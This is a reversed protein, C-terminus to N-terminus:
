KLIRKGSIRVSQGGSKVTGKLNYSSDLKAAISTGNPIVAKLVGKSSVTSKRPNTVDKLGESTNDLGLVRAGSTVAALFKENGVRGSYIGSYKSQAVTLSLSALLSAICLTATVKM